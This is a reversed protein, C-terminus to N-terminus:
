KQLLSEWNLIVHVARSTEAAPAVMLFRQGDAAADYLRAILSFTPDVPARFLKEPKGISLTPGAAVAVAMLDGDPSLYYLERGDRRWLTRLGGDESVRQKERGDPFSRIFIEVSGTENTQYAMWRGDPSLAAATSYDAATAFPEPAGPPDLSKTAISFEGTPDVRTYVLTRGDSSVVPLYEAYEADTILPEVKSGEVAAVRYVSPGATDRASVITAATAVATGDPFWSMFSASLGRTLKSPTDRALDVLVLDFLQDDTNWQGLVVSKGDPSIRPDRLVGRLSAAPGLERGRRDVWILRSSTSSSDAYALVGRRISIPEATSTPFPPVNQVLAQPESGVRGTSGDLPQAFLTTDRIFLGQGQTESPRDLWPAYITGRYLPLNLSEFKQAGDVLGVRSLSSIVVRRRDALVGKLFHAGEKQVDLLFIAKRERNKVDVRQVPGASAPFYIVDDVWWGAGGVAPASGFDQLSGSSVDIAKLRGDAFFAVSTGESSWFPYLARTSGPLAQPTANSLARLYIQRRGSARDVGVLAIRSGDPSVAPAQWPILSIGEPMTLQLHVAQLPVTNSRFTAVFVSIAGIGLGALLLAAARLNDARPTRMRMSTTGASAAATSGTAPTDSATRAAELAFGLDAASQFRATPQKALCRDIIRKLAPAVKSAGDPIEPPDEKLIATMTDAATDGAFARRGTLLEFLIAGFAFIDTRADTALGRVQEPAMYGVTGFVVGAQTLVPTTLMRSVGAEGEGPGAAKLKALGFDLIKVRGDTMLFLNEPKLDRHVIGKDHAASLGHAVQVAIDVLQRRPLAGDHQAERLTSGELLESVIYPAGDHEGIDFVALINPHNLAAAARAEQEFRRRRDDDVAVAGHLVKIAVDRGLRSDRARYVEGMGGSGLPSMIEYPGLHAGSSLSM